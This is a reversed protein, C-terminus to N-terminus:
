KIRNEKKNADEVGEHEYDRKPVKPLLLYIITGIILTM